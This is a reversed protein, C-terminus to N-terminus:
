THILILIGQSTLLLFSFNKKLFYCAVGFVVSHKQNQLFPSTLTSRPLKPRGPVHGLLHTYFGPARCSIAKPYLPLHAERSSSLLFGQCFWAAFTSMNGLTLSAETPPNQGRHFRPSGADQSCLPPTCYDYRFRWPYDERQTGGSNKKQEGATTTETASKRTGIINFHNVVPHYVSPNRM